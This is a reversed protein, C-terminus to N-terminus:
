SRPAGADPLRAGATALVDSQAAPTALASLLEVLRKRAQRADGALRGRCMSFDDPKAVAPLPSLFEVRQGARRCALALRAGLSSREWPLTDTPPWPCSSGILAIGGDRTQGIVTTDGALASAARVLYSEDLTPAGPRVFLIRKAGAARLAMDVRTLREGFTPGEQPMIRVPRATVHQAWAVDTSAPSLVRPGRWGDLDELACELLRWEVLCAIAPGLGSVFARPAGEETPQHCLLVLVTAEIDM